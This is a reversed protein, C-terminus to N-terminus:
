VFKNEEVFNLDQYDRHGGLDGLFEKFYRHRGTNGFPGQM